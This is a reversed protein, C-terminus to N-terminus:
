SHSANGILYLKILFLLPNIFDFVISLHDKIAKIGDLLLNLLGLCHM